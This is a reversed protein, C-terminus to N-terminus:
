LYRSMCMAMPAARDIYSLLSLGCKVSPASSVLPPMSAHAGRGGDGPQQLPLDHRDVAVGVDEGEVDVELLGLEVGVAVRDAAVLRGLVEVVRRDALRGGGALLQVGVLDARAGRQLEPRRLRQREAGVEVGERGGVPTAVGDDGVDVQGDLDDARAGDHGDVLRHRAAVGLAHLGRGDLPLPLVSASQEGERQRELREDVAAPVPVVDDGAVVAGGDLPGLPGSLDRGVAGLVARDVDADGRHQGVHAGLQQALEAVRLLELGVEVGHHHHVLALVLDGVAVVERGGLRAQAVLQAHDHLAVQAPGTAVGATLELADALAGRGVRHHHVVVDDALGLADDARDGEAVQGLPRRDDTAM